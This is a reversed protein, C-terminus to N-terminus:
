SLAVVRDLNHSLVGYGLWIAAGKAGKLRSRQWGYRRKLHSIRGECGARFRYRRRWSKTSEVPAARGVRPIVRDTVGVTALAQDAIDNGYGRDALVTRVQMGTAKASAVSAKLTEADPPNGCHVHHAVVLGEVTDAVAVKYGFETPAKPKGRRIPRADMDCLSIVRDPITREGAVRRATQALVRRVRELEDALRRMMAAGREQESPGAKRADRLVREAARATSKALEHMEATLRDVATRSGARGLSHSIKRVLKAASRGRNMFRTKLALGSRKVARVARGLRSISHACLGSDTPYRIDAEVVTTDVRLRRSRLVKTEVARKLLTENLEDVIEPGFRRTLKLLTTPHPVTGDLRLRCFRRWSLSDAVEKVVTEYGLHYRHKLYMLRLYTEIPITPRGIPCAFRAVFPALFRDDDLLEDISRLEGSLVRVERPLMEEWLTGQGDHLRLM